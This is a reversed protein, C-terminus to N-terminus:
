RKDASRASGRDKHAGQASVQQAKRARDRVKTPGKPQGRVKTPGKPQGQGKEASRASLVLGHSLLFDRRACVLTLIGVNHSM